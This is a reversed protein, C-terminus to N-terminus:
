FTFKSILYFGFAVFTFYLCNWIFSHSNAVLLGASYVTSFFTRWASPFSALHLSLGDGWLWAYAWAHHSHPICPLFFFRHAGCHSCLLLSAYAVPFLVYGGEGEVSILLCRSHALLGRIRPHLHPWPEKFSHRSLRNTLHIPETHAHAHKRTRGRICMRPGHHAHAPRPAGGRKALPGSEQQRQQPRRQSLTRERERESM